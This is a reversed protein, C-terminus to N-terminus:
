EDAVRIGVWPPAQQWPTGLFDPLEVTTSVGASGVGTLLDSWVIPNFDAGSGNDTSFVLRYTAGPESNWTVFVSHAVPDYRIETIDPSQPDDPAVIQVGGDYTVPRM